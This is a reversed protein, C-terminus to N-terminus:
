DGSWCWQKRAALLWQPVMPIGPTQVRQLVNSIANGCPKQSQVQKPVQSFHDKSIGQSAGSQGASWTQSHKVYIYSYRSFNNALNLAM